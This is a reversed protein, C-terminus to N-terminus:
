LTGRLNGRLRHDCHPCIPCDPANGRGCQPCAMLSKEKVDDSVRRCERIGALLVVPYVAIAIVALGEAPGPGLVGLCSAACVLAGGVFVSKKGSLCFAIGALYLLLYM